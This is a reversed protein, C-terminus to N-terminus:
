SEDRSWLSGLFGYVFGSPGVEIVVFTEDELGLFTEREEDTVEFRETTVGDLGSYEGDIPEGEGLFGHFYAVWAPEGEFRGLDEILGDDGVTFGELCSLDLPM